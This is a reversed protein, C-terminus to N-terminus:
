KFKTLQPATQSELGVQWYHGLQQLHPDRHEPASPLLVRPLARRSATHWTGEAPSGRVLPIRSKCLLHRTLKWSTDAEVASRPQANLRDELGSQPASPLEWAGLELVCLLGTHVSGPGWCM